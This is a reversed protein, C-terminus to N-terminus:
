SEVTALCCSDLCLIIRVKLSRIAWAGLRGVLGDLARVLVEVVEPKEACHNWGILIGKRLVMELMKARNGEEKGRQNEQGNKTGFVQPTVEWESDVLAFFAEYVPPLIEM